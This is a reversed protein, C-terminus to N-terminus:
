CGGLAFFFFLFVLTLFVLVTLDAQQSLTHSCSGLASVVICQIMRIFVTGLPGIKVAFTPAYRGIMLGVVMGFVIWSTLTRRRLFHWVDTVFTRTTNHKSSRPQLLDPSSPYNETYLSPADGHLGGGRNSSTSNNRDVHGPVALTNSQRYASMPFSSIQLWKHWKHPLCSSPAASNPSILPTEPAKSHQVPTDKLAQPHSLVLFINFSPTTSRHGSYVLITQLTSLRASTPIEFSPDTNIGTRHAPTTRCSQKNLSGEKLLCNRPPGDHPVSTQTDGGDTRQACLLGRLWADLVEALQGNPLLVLGVFLCARQDIFDFFKNTIDCM